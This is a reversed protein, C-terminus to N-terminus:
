RISRLSCRVRAADAAPTRVHGVASYSTWSMPQRVVGSRSPPPTTTACPRVRGLAPGPGPLGTLPDRDFVDGRANSDRRDGPATDKRDGSGDLVAWGRGTTAALRLRLVSSPALGLAGCLRRLTAPQPLHEGNEYGALRSVPMGMADAVERRSLHRARRAEALVRGVALAALEARRAAGQTGGGAKNLGLFDMTPADTSAPGGDLM